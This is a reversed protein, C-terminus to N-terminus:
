AAGMVRNFRVLASEKAKDVQARTLGAAISEALSAAKAMRADDPAILGLYLTETLAQSPTM